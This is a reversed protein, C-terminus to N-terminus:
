PRDYPIGILTSVAWLAFAVPLLTLRSSGPYGLAVLLFILIAFFMLTKRVAPTNM